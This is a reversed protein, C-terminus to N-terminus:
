TMVMKTMLLWKHKFFVAAGLIKSVYVASSYIHIGIEGLSTVLVTCENCLIAIGHAQPWM